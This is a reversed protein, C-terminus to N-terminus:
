ETKDPADFDILFNYCNQSTRLNLIDPKQNEPKSKKTKTKLYTSKTKKETIKNKNPESKM